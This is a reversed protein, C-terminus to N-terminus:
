CHQFPTVSNLYLFVPFTGNTREFTREEQPQVTGDHLLSGSIGPCDAEIVTLYLVFLTPGILLDMVTSDFAEFLLTM